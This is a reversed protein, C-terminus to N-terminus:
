IGRSDIGGQFRDHGAGGRRGMGRGREGREEGRQARLQALTARQAPTLVADIRRVTEARMAAFAAHREERSLERLAGRQGRSEQFITRIQAVQADDLSLAQQMHQLRREGRAAPDGHGRRGHEGGCREEAAPAGADASQASALGASAFLPLALAAALALKQITRNM